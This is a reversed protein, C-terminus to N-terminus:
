ELDRGAFRQVLAPVNNQDDMWETLRRALKVLEANNLEYTRNAGFHSDSLSRGKMVKSFATGLHRDANYDDKDVRRTIADFAQEVRTAERYSAEDIVTFAVITAIDGRDYTSLEDPLPHAYVGGVRTSSVSISFGASTEYEIKSQTRDAIGSVSVYEGTAEFRLTAEWQDGEIVALPEMHDTAHNGTDGRDRADPCGAAVHGVIAREADDLCAGYYTKLLLDAFDACVDASYDNFISRLAEDAGPLRNPTSYRTLFKDFGFSYEEEIIEIFQQLARNAPETWEGDGANYLDAHKISRALREADDTTTRTPPFEDRKWNYPGKDCERCKTVLSHNKGSSYRSIQVTREEYHPERVAGCDDCRDLLTLIEAGRETTFYQGNHEGILDLDQATDLLINEQKQTLNWLAGDRSRRLESGPSSTNAGMSKEPSSGKPLPGSYYTDRLLKRFRERSTAKTGDTIAKQVDDPLQDSSQISQSM